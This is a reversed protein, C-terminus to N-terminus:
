RCASFVACKVRSVGVSRPTGAFPIRRCEDVIVSVGLCVCVPSSAFFSFRCTETTVDAILLPGILLEGALRKRVGDGDVGVPPTADGDSAVAVTATPPDPAGNTMPPTSRVVREAEETGSECSRTEM